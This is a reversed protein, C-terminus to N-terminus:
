RANEDGAFPASTRHARETREKPASKRHARETNYEMRWLALAAKVEELTEFWHVSLFEDRFRGNLSEVLPNDTSKGPRSFDRKVGRRTGVRLSPHHGRMWNKEQLSQGMERLRSLM